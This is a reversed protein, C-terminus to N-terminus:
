NRDDMDSVFWESHKIASEIKVEGTSGQRISQVNDSNDLRRM